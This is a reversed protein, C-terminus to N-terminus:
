AVEAKKANKLKTIQGRLYAISRRLKENDARAIGHWRKYRDRDNQLEIFNGAMKETADAIRMLCGLKVQDETPTVVAWDKRSFERFSESM